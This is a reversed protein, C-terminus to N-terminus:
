RVSHESNVEVVPKVHKSVNRALNATVVDLNQRAIADLYLEGGVVECLAADGITQFLWSLQSRDYRQRLYKTRVTTDHFAKAIVIILRMDM